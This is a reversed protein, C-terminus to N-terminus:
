RCSNHKELALPIGPYSEGHPLQGNDPDELNGVTADFGVLAGIDVKLSQKMALNRCRLYDQGGLAM